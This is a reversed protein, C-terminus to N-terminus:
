RWEGEDVGEWWQRYYDGLDWYRDLYSAIESPKHFGQEVSSYIRDFARHIGEEMMSDIRRETQM